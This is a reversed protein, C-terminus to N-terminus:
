GSKITFRNPRSGLTIHKVNYGYEKVKEYFLNWEHKVYQYSEKLNDISPNKSQICIIYAKM